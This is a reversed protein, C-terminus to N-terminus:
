TLARQFASLDFQFANPIAVRSPAMMGGLLEAEGAVVLLVTLRAELM